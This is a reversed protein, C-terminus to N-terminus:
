VRVQEADGECLIEWLSVAATHNNNLQRAAVFEVVGEQVPGSPRLGYCIRSIAEGIHHYFHTRMSISIKWRLFPSARVKELALGVTHMLNKADLM